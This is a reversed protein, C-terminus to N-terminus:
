DFLESLKHAGDVFHLTQIGCSGAGVIHQVSDDIFLTSSPTLHHMECVTQFTERDPKRKGLISSYHVFDVIENLHKIGHHSLKQEFYDIHLENTNSLIGVTYKGSLRKLLDINESPIEKIMANWAHVVQNATIGHPLYDLLQNIFIASSIRGTEFDDFLHSQKAQSYYVDFNDMGLKEFEIKTLHYDVDIIVGGLDFIITNINALNM